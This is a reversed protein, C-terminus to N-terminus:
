GGDISHNRLEAALAILIILVQKGTLDGRLSAGPCPNAAATGRSRCQRIDGRAQDRNMALIILQAQLASILLTRGDVTHIGLGDRWGQFSITLLACM